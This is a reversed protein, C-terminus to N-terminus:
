LCFTARSRAETSTSTSPSRTLSALRRPRRKSPFYLELDECNCIPRSISIQMKWKRPKTNKKRQSISITHGRNKIVNKKNSILLYKMLVLITWKRIRSNKVIWTRIPRFHYSCLHLLAM